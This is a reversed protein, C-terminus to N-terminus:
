YWEVDVTVDLIGATSDAEATVVIATGGEPIDVKSGTDALSLNAGAVAAAPTITDGTDFYVGNDPGTGVKIGSNSVTVDTTVNHVLVRTVRGPMGTGSNHARPGGLPVPIGYTLDAGSLDIKPFTYSMFRPTDYM